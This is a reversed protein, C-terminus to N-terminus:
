TRLFAKSFYRELSYKKIFNILGSKSEFDLTCLSSYDTGQNRMGFDVYWYKQKKGNRFKFNVEVIEFRDDKYLTKFNEM